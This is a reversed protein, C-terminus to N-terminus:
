SKKFNWNVWSQILFSYNQDKCVVAVILFREKQTKIWIHLRRLLFFHSSYKSWWSTVCKRSQILAFNFISCLRISVSPSARLLWIFLHLIQCRPDQPKGKLAIKVALCKRQKLWQNVWSSFFDGHCESLVGSSANSKHFLMSGYPEIQM